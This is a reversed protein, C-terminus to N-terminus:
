CRKSRGAPPGSASEDVLGGRPGFVCGARHLPVALARGHARLHYRHGMQHQPSGCQLKPGSSESDWESSGRRAEQAVAAAAARRAARGPADPAGRPPSWVARRRLASRGLNAPEGRRRGPRCTVSSDTHTIPREGPGAWKPASDGLWRIWQPLGALVPVDTPHSVYRPMTPDDAVDDRHVRSARPRKECFM